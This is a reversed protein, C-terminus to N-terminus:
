FPVKVSLLGEGPTRGSLIRCFEVADLDLEAADERGGEEPGGDDGRGWSWTGGAPGTLRLRYAQGHRSAWERVVDDVIAGDHEATLHLPSRTARSLDIRHMWPDRTLVTDTLFGLTWWEEVGGVDQAPELLRSRLIGPMLRRGRAARSGIRRVENTLEQVTASSREAVQLGTLADIFLGGSAAAQRRAIKVQRASEWPTSVMAAMGGIHAVLERVTWDTCETAWAWQDPELSEVAASVRRYEEAALRMAFRREMVPKRPATRTGTPSIELSM